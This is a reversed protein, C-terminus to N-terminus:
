QKQCIPPLMSQFGQKLISQFTRLPPAPNGKGRCGYYELRLCPHNEAATPNLRVHQTRISSSFNNRVITNQDNNAVFM